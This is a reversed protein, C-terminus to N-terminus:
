RRCVLAEDEIMDAGGILAFTVVWLGSTNFCNISVSMHKFRSASFRARAIRSVVCVIEGFSVMFGNSQDTCATSASSILIWLIRM